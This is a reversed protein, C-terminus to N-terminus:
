WQRHPVGNLGLGTSKSHVDFVDGGPQPASPPSQSSRLGWSELASVEAPAFPDKPLRPMFIRTQGPHRLEPVGIVLHELRVPFGTPAGEVAGDQVATRYADLADRIQNLAQKLQAEKRRQQAHQVTPILLAALVGLLALVALLETLSFGQARGRRRLDGTFSSTRVANGFHSMSGVGSSSISSSM